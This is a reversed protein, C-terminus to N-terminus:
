RSMNMAFSDRQFTVQKRDTENLPPHFRKTERTVPIRQARKDAEQAPGAVFDLTRILAHSQSRAATTSNLSANGMSANLRTSSWREPKRERLSNEFKAIGEVTSEHMFISPEQLLSGPSEMKGKGRYLAKIAQKKPAGSLAGGLKEQQTVKDRSELSVRLVPDDVVVKNCWSEIAGEKLERAEAAIQAETM